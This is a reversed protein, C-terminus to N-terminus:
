QNAAAKAATIVAPEIPADYMFIDVGVRQGTPAELEPRSATM